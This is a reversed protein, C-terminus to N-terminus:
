YLFCWANFISSTCFNAFFIILSFFPPYSITCNHCFTDFLTKHLLIGFIMQSCLPHIRLILLLISILSLFPPYTCNRYSFNFISIHLILVSPYFYYPFWEICNVYSLMTGKNPVQQHDSPKKKQRPGLSSGPYFYLNTLGIGSPANIWRNRITRGKYWERLINFDFCWRHFTFPNKYRNRVSSLPLPTLSWIGDTSLSYILPIGCEGRINFNLWLLFYIRIHFLRGGKGQGTLFQILSDLKKSTKLTWYLENIFLPKWSTPPIKIFFGLYCKINAYPMKKKRKFNRHLCFFRKYVALIMKRKFNLILIKIFVRNKAM